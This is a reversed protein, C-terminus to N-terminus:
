RTGASTWTPPAWSRGSGTWSRTYPTTIWLRKRAALFSQVFFFRLPRDEYYPSSAIGVHFTIREGRPAAAEPPPFFAPGLLLEGSTGAWLGAFASQLTVWWPYDRWPLRLRPGRPRKM